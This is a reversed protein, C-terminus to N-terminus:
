RTVETVADLVDLLSAAHGELRGILYALRAPSPDAAMRGDLAMLFERAQEVDLRRGPALLVRPSPNAPVPPPTALGPRLERVDGSV